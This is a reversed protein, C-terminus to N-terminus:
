MSERPEEIPNSHWSSIATVQESVYGKNALKKRQKVERSREQHKEVHDELYLM